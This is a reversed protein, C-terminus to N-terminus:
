KKIAGRLRDIQVQPTKGKEFTDKLQKEVRDVYSRRESASMGDIKRNHRAIEATVREDRLGPMYQRYIDQIGQRADFESTRAQVDGQIRLRDTMGQLRQKAARFQSTLSVNMDKRLKNLRDDAERIDSMTYVANRDAPSMAEYILQEEYPSAIKVGIQMNILADVKHKDWGYFRARMQLEDLDLKRQSALNEFEREVVDSDRKTEAKARIAAQNAMVGAIGLAAQIQVPDIGQYDGREVSQIFGEPDRKAKLTMTDRDIEKKFQIVEKAADKRDTLNNAIRNGLLDGFMRFVGTQNEGTAEIAAKKLQDRSFIFDADAKDILKKRAAGRILVNAGILNDGLGDEVMKRTQPNSAAKLRNAHAEQIARSATSEFERHDVISDRHQQIIGKFEQEAELVSRTAETKDAYDQLKSQVEGLQAVADSAQGGFAEPGVLQPAPSPLGAQSNLRPLVPM